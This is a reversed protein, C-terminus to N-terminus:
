KFPRRSVKAVEVPNLTLKWLDEITGILTGSAVRSERAAAKPQWVAEMGKVYKPKGIPVVLGLKSSRV